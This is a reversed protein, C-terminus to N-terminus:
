TKGSSFCLVFFREMCIQDKCTDCLKNGNNKCVFNMMMFINATQFWERGMAEPTMYMSLPNGLAFYIMAFM